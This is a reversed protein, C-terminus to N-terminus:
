YSPHQLAQEVAALLERLQFPQVVASKFGFSAFDSIVPHDHYASSAIARVYPDLRRLHKLVYEGGLGDPMTLGLIVGAIHEGSVQALKYRECVDHGDRAIDVRYGSMKLMEAAQLRLPEDYDMLLLRTRSTKQGSSSAMKWPADPSPCAPLHLQVTTGMGPASHVTLAGGHQKIITNVTALGLGHGNPKTTFHPDFIKPLIEPSIGTGQDSISIRVYRGSPLSCGMTEEPQMFVNDARITVLGGNPMSQRANILINSIVQRIQIEDINVDWLDSSIEVRAREPSGAMALDSTKRVLPALNTRKRISPQERTLNLLQHSLSRAQMCAAEADSLRTFSPDTPPLDLKSLLVNASISSLLNNFDHITGGALVAVMQAKNLLVQTKELLREHTVPTLTGTFSLQLPDGGSIKGQLQVWMLDGTISRLRFEAHFPKLSHKAQDIANLLIAADPPYCYALLGENLLADSAMGTVQEWEGQTKMFALTEDVRCHFSLVPQTEFLQRCQRGSQHMSETLIHASLALALHSAAGLLVMQSDSLSPTGHYSLIELVGIVNGGYRLPIGAAQALGYEWLQLKRSSASNRHQPTIWVPQKQEWTM